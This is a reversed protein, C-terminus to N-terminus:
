EPHASRRLTFRFISGVGPTSEVTLEGGHERIITRAIPLGLGTGGVAKENIRLFPEFIHELLDTPIGIGTDSVLVHVLPEPESVTEVRLTIRGEAPTYNIANAVLNTIVQEMRSTDIRVVVPEVPLDVALQIRKQEAESRLVWVAHEIVTQLIMEELHLTIKGRGFRSFDLLDEVLLRMRESVYDLVALHEELREPQRRSLYLRTKINAIPTRLEHSAHAIFQDKQEQLAKEQSIDRLITVTGSGMQDPSVLTTTVGVDFESGDKRRLRAEERWVGGLALVRALREAYERNQGPDDTLTLLQAHGSMQLLEDSSYGTLECLARNVYRTVGNEVYTVGEAMGNLIADLQRREAQLQATKEDVLEQLTSAYRQIEEYLRANVLASAVNGAFLQILREDDEGFGRDPRVMVVTLVGVPENQWWMPVALMARYPMARLPDSADVSSTYANTLLTQRQALARGPIGEGWRLRPLTEGGYEFARRFAMPYLVKDAADWLWVTNEDAELLEVFRDAVVDLIALQTQQSAALELSIHRLAFMQNLYQQTANFLRMNHLALSVQRALAILFPEHEARYMGVQDGDLTLRGAMEGQVVFPVAAWSRMWEFGPVDLWDPDDRVDASISIRFDKESEGAQPLNRDPPFALSFVKDRLGLAEYGVAAVARLLGDPGRLWIAGTTFPLVRQVQHLVEEFISTHELSSSLVLAIDRLVEAFHRERREAEFLRANEIAIAASNAFSMLIPNHTENYANLEPSDLALIGAITGDRLIIPVGAWSRIWETGEISLWGPYQSVDPITKVRRQNMVEMLSPVTALDLVLGQPDFASHQRYGLSRAVRVQDGEIMLLNAAECPAVTHVGKLLRDLTEDLSLTSNLLVSLDHLASDIERQRQVAGFLRANSIAIGAQDALTQFRQAHQDNFAGAQGSYLLLFGIVEGEICIPAGVNSLAWETGPRIVWGPFERTNGIALAQQHEYMWRLNAYEQIVFRPPNADFALPSDGRLRVIQGVGDELLVLIAVEYAPMVSKIGDLIRDFVEDLDLTRTIAAANDQLVEAWMRQEHEAEQARARANMETELQEVYRANSLALGITKGISELTELQQPVSEYVHKYLLAIAGLSQTQYLLPVFVGGVYGEEHLLDRVTAATRVDQMMDSVVLVKGSTAATGTLSQVPLTGMATQMAPSFGRSVILHLLDSEQYFFYLAIGPVGTYAQVFNLAQQAVTRFDLSRYLLDAVANLVQLSYTKSQLDEQYALLAREARKRATIDYYHEIRGGSFLGSTIPQSWHELWRDEHGPGELIHCEFNEVYTNNAYTALVRAAFEEPAEFKHQIQERLLRTKDQGIVELRNIGFYREMAQNIWVVNFTADLIFIGVASSDLVDEALSRYVAESHLLADAQQVRQTIDRVSIATLCEGTECDLASFSVEAPFLTGDARRGQTEIPSGTRASAQPLRMQVDAPNSGHDTLPLAPLLTGLALDAAEEESYGFMQRAAANFFVIRDSSELGLTANTDMELLSRARAESNQLAQNLEALTRTRQRLHVTQSLFSYGLGAILLVLGAATAVAALLPAQIQAVWGNLPVLGIEWRQGRVAIPEIAPEQEFVTPDLLIRGNELRLGIRVGPGLEPVLMTEVLSGIDVALGLEIRESGAIEITHDVGILWEEPLVEVPEGVSLVAAEGEPVLIRDVLDAAELPYVWAEGESPRLAVFRVWPRDILAQEVVRDLAQLDSMGSAALDAQLRFPLDLTHELESQLALLADSHSERMQHQARQILAGRYFGIGLGLLVLLFLLLVAALFFVIGQRHAYRGFLGPVM